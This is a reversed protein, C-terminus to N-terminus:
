DHGLPLRDAASGSPPPSSWRPMMEQHRYLTRRRGVVLGAARSSLRSIAPDDPALVVVAVLEFDCPLVRTRLGLFEGRRHLRAAMLLRVPNGPCSFLRRAQPMSSETHRTTTAM